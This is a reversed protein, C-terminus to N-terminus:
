TSTGRTAGDSQLVAGARGRVRVDDSDRTSGIRSAEIAVHRLGATSATAGAAAGGGRGSTARAWRARSTRSARADRAGSGRTARRGAATTSVTEGRGQCKTDSADQAQNTSRQESRQNSQLRQSRTM